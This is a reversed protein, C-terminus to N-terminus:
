LMKGKSFLHGEFINVKLIKKLRLSVFLKELKAEFLNSFTNPLQEMKELAKVFNGHKIHLPTSIVNKSNRLLNHEDNM